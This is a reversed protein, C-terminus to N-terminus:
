CLFEFHKDLIKQYTASQIQFTLYKKKNRNLMEVVCHYDVFVECPGSTNQLPYWWKLVLIIENIKVPEYCFNNQDLISKFHFNEKAVKYCHGPKLYNELHPKM